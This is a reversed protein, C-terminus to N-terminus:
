SLMNTLMSSVKNFHFFEQHQVGKTILLSNLNYGEDTWSPVSIVNSRPDEPPADWLTPALDTFLHPYEM